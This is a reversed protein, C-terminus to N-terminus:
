EKSQNKTNEVTWYHRVMVEFLEKSGCSEKAVKRAKILADRYMYYTDRIRQVQEPKGLGYFNRRKDEPISEVLRLYMKADHASQKLIIYSVVNNYRELAWDNLKDVTVNLTMQHLKIVHNGNGSHGLLHIFDYNEFEDIMEQTIVSKELIREIVRDLQFEFQDKQLFITDTGFIAKPVVLYRGKSCHGIIMKVAVKKQEFHQKLFDSVRSNM